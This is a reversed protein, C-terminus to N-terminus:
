EFLDGEVERGQEERYRQAYHELEEMLNADLDAIAVKGDEARPVDGRGEFELTALYCAAEAIDDKATGAARLHEAIKRVAADRRARDTKGEELERIYALAEPLRLAKRGDPLELHDGREQPTGTADPPLELRYPKVYGPSSCWLGWPDALTVTEDSDEDLKFTRPHWHPEFGAPKAPPKRKGQAGRELERLTADTAAKVDEGLLAARAEMDHADFGMAAKDIEIALRARVSLDCYKAIRHIAVKRAMEGYWLRWSGSEPAKSARRAREIELRPIVEFTPGAGTGWWIIAYSRIVSPDFPKDTGPNMPTHRLYPELGYAHDFEDGERVARAEVKLVDRSRLMGRIHGQVMPMFSARKDQRGKVSRAILVGEVGDPILGCRAADGLALMVSEPTCKLLERDKEIAALAVHTFAEPEVMDGLMAPLQDGWDQIAEEVALVLPPRERIRAVATGTSM